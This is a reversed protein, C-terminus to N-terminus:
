TPRPRAVRLLPASGLLALVAVQILYVLAVLPRHQSTIYRLAPPVAAELGLQFLSWLPAPAYAWPAYCVSKEPRDFLYTNHVYSDGSGIDQNKKSLHSKSPPPSSPHPFPGPCFSAVKGM